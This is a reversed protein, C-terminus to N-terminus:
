SSRSIQHATIGIAKWVLKSGTKVLQRESDLTRSHMKLAAPRVGAAYNSAQFDFTGDTRSWRLSQILGDSKTLRMARGDDPVQNFHRGINYRCVREYDSGDAESFSLGPWSRFVRHSSRLRCAPHGTVGKGSM